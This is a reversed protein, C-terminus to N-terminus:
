QTEIWFVSPKSQEIEDFTKEWCQSFGIDKMIKKRKTTRSKKKGNPGCFWVGSNAEWQFAAEAHRFSRHIKSRLVTFPSFPM